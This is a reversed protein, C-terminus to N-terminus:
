LSFICTAGYYFSLRRSRLGGQRNIHAVTSTNDTRVLVHHGQLFPLFHRLTLVVAMLELYNIHARSLHPSWVGNIPRGEFVGGWGTLTADTTIVKRTVVTGLSVGETLIGRRKWVRLVLACQAYVMSTHMRHRVPDLKLVSVWLQFGQM